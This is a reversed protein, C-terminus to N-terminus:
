AFIKNLMIYIQPSSLSGALLTAFISFVAASQSATKAIERWARKLESTKAGEAHQDAIVTIPEIDMAKAVRMCTEDDFSKIRNNKYHSIRQRGIGLLEGAQYDSTLQHKKRVKAIWDYPKM